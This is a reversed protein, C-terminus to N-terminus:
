KKDLTIKIGDKEDVMKFSAGMYNAIKGFLADQFKMFDSYTMNYVIDKKKLEPFISKGLIIVKNNSQEIINIGGTMYANLINLVGKVFGDFGEEKNWTSTYLSGTFAGVEEPSKGVSKAFSVYSGIMINKQYILYEVKQSDTTSPLSYKGQSIGTVVFLFSFLFLEIKKMTM